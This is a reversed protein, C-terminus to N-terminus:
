CGPTPDCYDGLGDGDADGQEPNEISPCNDRSDDIGDGDEDFVTRYVAV